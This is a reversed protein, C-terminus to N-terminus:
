WLQFGIISNGLTGYNNVLAESPSIQYDGLELGEERAANDITSLAIGLQTQMRQDSSFLYSFYKMTEIWMSIYIDKTPIVTSMTSSTILTPTKKYTGVIMYNPAGINDPVRPFVRFARTDMNYSISHPFFRVHTLELDKIVKLPKVIPPNSALSVLDVKRLGLFDSPVDIFPAGHDQENPILYFPPLTKISERWDYRSWILNWTQNCIEASHDEKVNAPVNRNVIKLVKDFTYNYDM